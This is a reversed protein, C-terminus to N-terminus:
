DGPTAAEILDPVRDAWRRALGDADFKPQLKVSRALIFMVVSHVAGKRFRRATFRFGRRGGVQGRFFDVDMVLVGVVDVSAGRVRTEIQRLDRNYAAEVEVPTMRRLGGRGSGRTLPVNKTPIALAKGHKPTIVAGLGQTTLIDDALPGRAFVVAAAKFSSRGKPYVQLGVMNGARAGLARAITQRLELLLGEGGAAVGAQVGAEARQLRDLAWANFDDARMDIKM